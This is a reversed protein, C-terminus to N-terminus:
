SRRKKGSSVNRVLSLRLIECLVVRNLKIMCDAHYTASPLIGALWLLDVSDSQRAEIARSLLM